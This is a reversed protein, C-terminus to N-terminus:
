SLIKRGVLCSVQFTGSQLCLFGKVSCEQIFAFSCHKFPIARKSESAQPHPQQKLTHIEGVRGVRARTHGGVQRGHWSGFRLACM